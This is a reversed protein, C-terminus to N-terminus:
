TPIFFFVNLEQIVYHVPVDFPIHKNLKMDTIIHYQRLYLPSVPRFYKFQSASAYFGARIVMNQKQCFFVLFLGGQQYYIRISVPYCLLVCMIM